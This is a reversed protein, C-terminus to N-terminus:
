IGETIKQAIEAKYKKLAKEIEEEAEKETLAPFADELKKRVLLFKNRGQKLKPLIQEGWIVLKGAAEEINWESM